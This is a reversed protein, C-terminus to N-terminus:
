NLAYAYRNLQISLPDRSIFRGEAPDYWRNRMQHLGVAEDSIVGWAGIFRRSVSGALSGSSAIEAGWADFAFDAVAAGTADTVTRVSGLADAQVQYINSGRKFSLIEGLPAYYVTETGESDVERVLDWGDWEF